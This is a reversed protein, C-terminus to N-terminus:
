FTINVKDGEKLSLQHHGYCLDLTSFINAERFADFIEKLLPMAYKNSYTQKNMLHYDQGMYQKIWNSFIDKKTSM